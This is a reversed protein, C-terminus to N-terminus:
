RVESGLVLVQSDMYSGGVGTEVALKADPVQREGARGMLQRVSEILIALGGGVVSHGQSLMGGNTTMPLSGGPGTNGAAVFAGARGREVFGLEELCILNFIAYSDYIEAIDVDKPGIGAEAYAEEAAEKWAFRTMDPEQSLAYHTVRGGSGLYYIPKEALDPAREASTLVLACAGDALMNSEKAHLPDSLMKSSLVEDVTLPKRYMANPNLCAWERLAVCVSALQEATTGTEYMYRRMILAAIASFHQGYPREWEAPIGFRAFTDIADDITMGSAPKDSQVILVNEAKGSAILSGATKFLSSSSSGGSMVQMSMHAIGDLGLEETIRSFILDANFEANFIAGTTIVVDIDGKGLGADLVAERGVLLAAELASREEYVGTPVEGYGVAAFKGRLGRAETSV